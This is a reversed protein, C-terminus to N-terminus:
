SNMLRKKLAQKRRNLEAREAVQSVSDWQTVEVNLLGDHWDSNVDTKPRDDVIEIQSMQFGVFIRKRVTHSATSSSETSGESVHSLSTSKWRTGQLVAFVKAFCSCSSSLGPLAVHILDISARKGQAKQADELLWHIKQKDEVTFGVTELPFGGMNTFFHAFRPSVEESNVSTDLNIWCTTDFLCDLMREFSEFQQRMVECAQQEQQMACYVQDRSEEACHYSAYSMLSILSGFVWSAPKLYNVAQHFRCWRHLQVLIVLFYMRPSLNTVPALSMNLAIHFCLYVGHRMTDMQLALDASAMSLSWYAGLILIEQLLSGNVHAATGLLTSVFSTDFHKHRRRMCFL